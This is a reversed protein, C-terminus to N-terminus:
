SKTRDDAPRRFIERIPRARLLTFPVPDLSLSPSSFLPPSTSSSPVAAPGSHSLSFTLSFARVSGLSLSPASQSLLRPLLRTRVSRPVPDRGARGQARASPGAPDVAPGLGPGFCCNGRAHTHAPDVAPGDTVAGTIRQCLGYQRERDRQRDRETERQRERERDREREREGESM